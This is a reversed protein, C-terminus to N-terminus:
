SRYRTYLLLLRLHRVKGAEKGAVPATPVVCRLEAESPRVSWELHAANMRLGREGVGSLLLLDVALLLSHHPPNSVAGWGVKVESLLLLQVQAERGRERCCACNSRCTGLRVPVLPNHASAPPGGERCCSCNSRCTAPTSIFPLSLKEVCV